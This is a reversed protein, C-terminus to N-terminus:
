QKCANKKKDLKAYLYEENIASRDPFPAFDRALHEGQYFLFVYEFVVLRVLFLPVSGTMLVVNIIIKPRERTERRTQVEARQVSDNERDEDRANRGTMDNCAMLSPTKADMVHWQVTM